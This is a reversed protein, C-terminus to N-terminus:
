ALAPVSRRLGVYQLGAFVAVALAQGGTFLYGWLTPDAWGTVLLLVSDIVWLLNASVVGWVVWRPVITRGALYVLLASFPLLSFGATRLLAVNLGLLGALPSAAIMMLAGTTGSIVGDALLARRLLNWSATMSSM